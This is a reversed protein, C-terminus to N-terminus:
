LREVHFEGKRDIALFWRFGPWQRVAALLKVRADDRIYTSKVEHLEIRGDADEVAFDPSYRTVMQGARGVVLTLAEFDWSRIVGARRLGDLHSAYRAEAKSKFKPGTPANEPTTAVQRGAPEREASPPAELYERAEERRQWAAYQEASWRLGSM